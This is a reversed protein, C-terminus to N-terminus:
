INGYLHVEAIKSENGITIKLKIIDGSYELVEAYTNELEALAENIVLEARQKAFDSESNISRLNSGLNRDYFFSGSKAAICIVARQFLADTDSLMKYNGTSDTVADGNIIKVDTM